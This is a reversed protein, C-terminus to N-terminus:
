DPFRTMFEEAGTVTDKYREGQKDVFSNEAMLFSAKIIMYRVEDVEETEPFDRRLNEFSQMSAQYQRINYYLLGEEFAKRELKQRMEDILKNCEEVRPNNPYANIFLQFEDIAKLTYTQDLRFTPSMQYNSYAVMFEAD